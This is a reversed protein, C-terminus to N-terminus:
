RAGNAVGEKYLRDIMDAFPDPLITPIQKIVEIAEKFTAKGTLLRAGIDQCMARRGLTRSTEVDGDTIVVRRSAKLCIGRYLHDDHEATLELVDGNIVEMFTM